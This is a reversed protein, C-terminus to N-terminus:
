GRTVELHKALRERSHAEGKAFLDLCYGKLSAVTGEVDETLVRDAYRFGGELLKPGNGNVTFSCHADIPDIGEVSGRQDRIVRNGVRELARLVLGECALLSADVREEPTRPKQPHEAVSPAPPLEQQGPQVPARDLDEPVAGPIEFPIPIGLDTGLKLLAAQMQAPTASGTAVKMLAWEQFEEPTPADKEPDFGNAKLMVKASLRGLTYLEISEKSRDPRLHLETLDYIFSDKEETEVRLIHTSFISLMARLMPEVHLKITDEDVAWVNWHNSGREQGEAQGTVGLIKEAPLEMGIAFLHLADRRNKVTEADFDSFFTLHQGKEVLEDPVLMIVPLQSEPSTPDAATAAAAEMFLRVVSDARNDNPQSGPVQPLEIGQPLMLVGNGTLRSSYMASIRDSAAKIERMVGLLSQFPSTARKKHAADPLWVRVVADNETLVIPLDGHQFNIQWGNGLKSIEEVSVIEWLEDLGDLSPDREVEEASPARGVVYFEGAVTLHVGVSKLNEEGGDGFLLDRVGRAAESDTDVDIKALSLATGIYNAAYKAVGLTRYFEYCERQWILDSHTQEQSASTPATTRGRYRTASATLARVEPSTGRGTRAM